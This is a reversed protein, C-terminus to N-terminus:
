GLTDLRNRPSKELTDSRLNISQRFRNPKSTSILTLGADSGTPCRTSATAHSRYAARMRTTRQEHSARGRASRDKIKCSVSLPEPRVAAERRPLSSAASAILQKNYSPEHTTRAHAVPADPICTRSFPLRFETATLYRCGFLAPRLQDSRPLFGFHTVPQDACFFFQTM